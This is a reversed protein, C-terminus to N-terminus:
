KKAGKKAKTKRKFTQWDYSEQMWGVPLTPIIVRALARESATVTRKDKPGMYYHTLGLKVAECIKFTYKDLEKPM